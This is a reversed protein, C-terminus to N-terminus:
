VALAFESRYGLPRLLRSTALTLVALGLVSALGAWRWGALRVFPVQLVSTGPPYDSAVRQQIAPLITNAGPLTLEGRAFAMPQAVYRVEDNIVLVRPPFLLYGAAYLLLVILYWNERRIM